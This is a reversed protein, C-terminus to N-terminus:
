LGMLNINDDHLETRFEDLKLIKNIQPQELDIKTLILLSNVQQLTEEIPLVLDMNIFNTAGIMQFNHNKMFANLDDKSACDTSGEAKYPRFTITVISYNRSWFTGKLELM